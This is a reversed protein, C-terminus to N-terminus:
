SVGISWSFNFNTRARILLFIYIYFLAFKICVIQPFVTAGVSYFLEMCNMAGIRWIDERFAPSSIKTMLPFNKWCRFLSFVCNNFLISYYLSQMKENGKINDFKFAANKLLYPSCPGMFIYEVKIIHKDEVKPWHWRVQEPMSSLPKRHLFMM